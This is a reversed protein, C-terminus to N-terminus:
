DSEDNNERGSEPVKYTHSADHKSNEPTPIPALVPVYVNGHEKVRETEKNASNKAKDLEKTYAQGLDKEKDKEMNKDKYQGKGKEIAPNNPVKVPSSPLGDFMPKGTGEKNPKEITGSDQKANGPTRPLGSEIGKKEAKIQLQVQPNELLRVRESTDKLKEPQTVVGAKQATQWLAYEGLTLNGKQALEREQSTLSFVAVQPTLGKKEGIETVWSIIQNENLEKPIQEITKNPMPSYGVVVWHQESSLFKQDYAQTVIQGLVEEIPKGKLDIQSLMRKADENQTQIKLLHGQADIAFQLSPNIDVSLLAVATPAQYLNWGLLTTLVLIFLAAVGAWVRLGGFVDLGIRIEIEEGVEANLQRHVQRFTGDQGLVTYRSGSKELVVAKMKSM